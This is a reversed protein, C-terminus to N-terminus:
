QEAIRTMQTAILQWRGDRKSAVRLHRFRGMGTNSEIRESDRIIALEGYIRVQVEEIEYSQFRLRVSTLAGIVAAKNLV